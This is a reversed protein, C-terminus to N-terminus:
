QERSEKKDRKTPTTAEHNQKVYTRCEKKQSNDKQQQNIGNETPAKKWRFTKKESMKKRGKHEHEKKPSKRKLKYESRQM